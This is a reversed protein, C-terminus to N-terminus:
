DGIIPTLNQFITYNTGCIRNIKYEINQMDRISLPMLDSVEMSPFLVNSMIEIYANLLKLQLEHFALERGSYHVQRIYGKFFDNYAMSLSYQYNTIDEHAAQKQVAFKELIIRDETSM